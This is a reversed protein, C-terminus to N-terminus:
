SRSIGVGWKLSKLNYRLLFGLLKSVPLDTCSLNSHAPAPVSGPSNIARFSQLGGLAFLVIPFAASNVGVAPEPGM